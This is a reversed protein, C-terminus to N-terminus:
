GGGSRDNSLQCLSRRTERLSQLVNPAEDWSVQGCDSVERRRRRRRMGETRVRSLRYEPFAVDKWGDAAGQQDHSLLACSDSGLGEPPQRHGDRGDVGAPVFNM